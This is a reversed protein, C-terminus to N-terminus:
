SCSQLTTGQNKGCRGPRPDSLTSKLEHIYEYYKNRATLAGYRSEQRGQPSSKTDFGAEGSIVSIIIILIVTKLGGKQGGTGTHPGALPWPGAAQAEELYTARFQDDLHLGVPLLHACCGPTHLLHPCLANVRILKVFLLGDALGSNLM